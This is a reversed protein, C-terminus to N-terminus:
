ALAVAVFLRRSKPIMMSSARRRLRGLAVTSRPIESNQALLRTCVFLIRRSESFRGTTFTIVDSLRRFDANTMKPLVGDFFDALRGAV